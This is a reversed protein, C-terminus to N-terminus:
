ITARRLMFWNPVGLVQREAIVEFGFRQYLRANIPKDTELYAVGNHRDVRRCFEEILASGMGQGQYDPSVVVPGLHWHPEDPDLKEWARTWRFVRWAGVVGAGRLIAPLLMLKEDLPVRCGGPPSLGCIGMLERDRWAGFLQQRSAQQYLFPQFMRLLARERRGPDGGFVRAHLPNDRMGRALLGAGAPVDKLSLEDIRM